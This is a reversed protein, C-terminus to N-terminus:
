IRKCENLKFKKCCYQCYEYKVAHGITKKDCFAYSSSYTMQTVWIGLYGLTIENSIKFDMLPSYARIITWQIIIIFFSTDSVIAM